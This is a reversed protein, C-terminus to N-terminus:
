ILYWKRQSSQETFSKEEEMRDVQRAGIFSGSVMLCIIVLTIWMSRQWHIAQLKKM